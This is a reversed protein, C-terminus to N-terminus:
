GSAATFPFVARVHYRKDVKGWRTVGDLDPGIVVTGGTASDTCLYGGEFTSDVALIWHDGADGGGHDVHLLALEGSCIASSLARKLADTGQAANVRRFPDAVLGTAKALESIVTNSGVFCGPTQQGLQNLHNPNTPKGAICAAQAIACLLCGARGITAPGHGLKQKSWLPDAQRFAKV